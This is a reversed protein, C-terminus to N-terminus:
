YNAPLLRELHYYFGFLVIAFPVVGMVWTTWRHYRHFVLWWAGGVVVLLLGWWVTPLRTEGRGSLADDLSSRSVVPQPPAKVPQPSRDRNLTAKVILRERASFKPHCTTLTLTATPTADLVQVDKPTVAFPAQSVEYHFTGSVTTIIISDGPALEDLRNFPAGYTTRHGAIAANGLQGPLPTAPYHGPAM